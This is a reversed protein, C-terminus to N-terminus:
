VPPKSEVHFPKRSLILEVLVEAPVSSYKEPITFCATQNGGNFARLFSEASKNTEVLYEFDHPVFGIYTQGFFSFVKIESLNEWPIFVTIKPIIERNVEIGSESVTVLPLECEHRQLIKKPRSAIAILSSPICIAAFLWGADCVIAVM